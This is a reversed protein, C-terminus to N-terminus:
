LNAKVQDITDIHQIDDIAILKNNRCKTSEKLPLRNKDQAFFTRRM